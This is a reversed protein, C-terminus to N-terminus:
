AVDFFVTFIGVVFATALLQWFSLVGLAYSVPITALLVARAADGAIL